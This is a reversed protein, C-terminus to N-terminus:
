VDIWSRTYGHYQTFCSLTLSHSRLCALVFLSVWHSRSHTWWEVGRVGRQSSAFLCFQRAQPGHRTDLIIGSLYFLAVGRWASAAFGYCGM